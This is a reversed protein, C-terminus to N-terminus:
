NKEEMVGVRRIRLFFLIFFFLPVAGALRFWPWHGPPIERAVIAYAITFGGGLQSNRFEIVISKELFRLSGCSVATKSKQGLIM